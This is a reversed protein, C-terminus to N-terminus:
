EEVTM